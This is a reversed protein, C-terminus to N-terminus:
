FFVQWFYWFMGLFATYIIICTIIIIIWTRLLKMFFVNKEFDNNRNVIRKWVHM